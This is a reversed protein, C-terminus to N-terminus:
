RIELKALVNPTNRIQFTMRSPQLFTILVYYSISRRYSYPFQRPMGVLILEESRGGTGNVCTWSGEQEPTLTVEYTGNSQTAQLEEGSYFKANPIAAGGDDECTLVVNNSTPGGIRVFELSPRQCAAPSFLVSLLAASLLLQVAVFFDCHHRMTLTVRYVSVPITMRLWLRSARINVVTVYCRAIHM